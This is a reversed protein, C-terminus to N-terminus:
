PQPRSRVGVAPIRNHQQTDVLEVERLEHVPLRHPPRAPQEWDPAHNRRRAAYATMLDRALRGPSVRDAAPQRLIVVLRHHATDDAPNLPRFLKARVPLSLPAATEAELFDALAEPLEAEPVPAPVLRPVVAATASLVRPAASSGPMPYVTRLHEYRTVLDAFADHLGVAYLYGTFQLTFSATTTGVATPSRLDM